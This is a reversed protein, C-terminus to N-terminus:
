HVVRADEVIVEYSYGAGFDKKAAVTGEITIVDDTKVQDHSTFVLDHSNKMPDGTGDQVHIWNRGMIMPNFKVVRGRVRVSKGDLKEAQEFVEGVTYANDGEAKEVTVDTLPVVAGISGGSIQPLSTTAPKEAQQEEQAVAAAFSDPQATKAQSSAPTQASETALGNSFIISAFSRKLKPSTFNKMVMGNHYQVTQGKKVATEPIAVWQDGTSNHVMLYTYGGADMTEVVTGKVLGQKGSAGPMASASSLFAVSLLILLFSFSFSRGFM